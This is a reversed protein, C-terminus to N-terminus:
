DMRERREGEKRKPVPAMEFLTEKQLPRARMRKPPETEVGPHDLLYTCDGCHWQEDIVTKAGTITKRCRFCIVKEKRKTQQYTM